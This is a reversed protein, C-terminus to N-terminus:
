DLSHQESRSRRARDRPWGLLVTNPRLGGIGHCQILAEIGDSLLENCTVVPFAQLEEKAIFSRLLKEYRREGNPTTKSIARSLRHWADSNRPRLHALTRLDPHAAPDLRHRQAGHHDAALEQSSVIRRGTEAVSKASTRLDRRKALRGLSIRNRACRIFWHLAAIFAISVTAWVWNILFMVALCGIAGLLSTVLPLLPVDAPLEPNKTIAEYFTALNLLGYTIMFFMTIIPAIANLDGLVICVQAIVFTLVTARRPENTLGSGAGFFEAVHLRRRACVGAPHAAGGDHQGAGVFADGRLRGRHDAAALGRHRPDVMNNAILEEAPRACGLLVAQSLISWGRSASRWCRGAPDVEVPEGSDGSMNAGAMIGTVAPFFLAFM